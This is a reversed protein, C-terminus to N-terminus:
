AGLCRGHRTLLRWATRGAFAIDTEDPLGRSYTFRLQPFVQPCGGSPSAVRGFSSHRLCARLNAAPSATAVPYQHTSNIEPTKHTNSDTSM